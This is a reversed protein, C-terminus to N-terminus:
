AWCLCSGPSLSAAGGAGGGGVTVVEAGDMPFPGQGEEQGASARVRQTRWSQHDSTSGSPKSQFSRLGEEGGESKQDRQVGSQRM